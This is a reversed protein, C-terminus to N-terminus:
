KSNNAKTTTTQANVLRAGPPPIPGVRHGLTEFWKTIIIVAAILM